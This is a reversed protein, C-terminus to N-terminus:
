WIRKVSYADFASDKSLLNINEIIAQAIILRDFPDRHYLPLTATIKLHELNIHLINIESNTIEREIFTDFPEDFKLKGLNYKISMEWLSAISIFSQNDESEILKKVKDSIQKNGNVFWLFTHTDLLLNVLSNNM